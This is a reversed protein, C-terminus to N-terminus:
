LINDNKPSIQKVHQDKRSVFKSKNRKMHGIDNKSLIVDNRVIIEDVFIIEKSYNSVLQINLKM